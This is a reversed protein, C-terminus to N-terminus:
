KPKKELSKKEFWKPKNIFMEKLSIWMNNKYYNILIIAHLTWISTKIITEMAQFLIDDLSDLFVPRIFLERISWLVYFIFCYIAIKKWTL